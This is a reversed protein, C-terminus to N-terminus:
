RREHDEGKSDVNGGRRSRRGGGALSRWIIAGGALIIFLPWATDWSLDFWRMEVALFILGAGVLWFGGFRSDCEPRLLTAIGVALIALPWSNGFNLGWLGLSAVLLWCGILILTLGGRQKSSTEAGALTALGAGVLLLPWLSAIEFDIFDLRRDLLLALGALLLLGGVAVRGWHTTQMENEPTM